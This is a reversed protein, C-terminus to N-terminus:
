NQIPILTLYQNKTVEFLFFNNVAAYICRECTKEPQLFNSPTFHRQAGKKADNDEDEKNQMAKKLNMIEQPHTQGDQHRPERFLFGVDEVLCCKATSKAAENM